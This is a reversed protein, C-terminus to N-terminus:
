IQFQRTFSYSSRTTQSECIVFINVPESTGGSVPNLVHCRFPGRDYRTVNVITLTTNGDSLQVRDGSRLTQLATLFPVHFCWYYAVNGLVTIASLQATRSRLTKNNFAQCSYNGSQSMQLNVLRLEPGTDSLLDGNLFWYLSAAPRSVASCTLSINSGQVYNEQLPSLTLNVNEPGYNISLNQSDSTGNSIPNFVNCRFPGQDYRSVSSITLTSGGDTLQVPQGDKMWVRTSTSSDDDCTLKVSSNDEILNETHCSLTPRSVKTQVELKATGQIQEAGQPIIILEYEGSDEETLNRLVLSGTSKDLTIRNEYGQGVIDATVSTIVNITGNFSWTLALFPKTAPKLSTTFTVSEGAAGRLFDAAIVGAGHCLAASGPVNNAPM